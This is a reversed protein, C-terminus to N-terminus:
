FNHKQTVVMQNGTILLSILDITAKLIEEDTQTSNIITNTFQKTSVDFVQNTKLSYEVIIDHLTMKNNDILYDYKDSILERLIDIDINNTENFINSSIFENVFYDANTNCQVNTTSIKHCNEDYKTNVVFKPDLGKSSLIMPDINDVNNIMENYKDVFNVNDFANMLVTKYVDIFGSKLINFLTIYLPNITKGDSMKDMTREIAQILNVECGLVVGHYFASSAAKIADDVADKILKQSLESDAGVEIIGMKLNLAYLRQQALSVELNFTGLKQYKAETEELAVKADKKIMDFKNEDLVFGSFLSTKLGLSCGKVYGLRIYHESLEPLKYDTKSTVDEVDETYIFRYQGAVDNLVMNKINPIEPRTDINFVTFIQEGNHLQEIISKELQQDIVITNCLVAFDEVLKRTHASVAKYTTLIMNVDKKKSYENQLDRVIIQSLAKEDYYPAAVILHRGRMECQMNLPQLIEQYTQKTVKTSFIIIDAEPLIMVNDDSNIYMRDTLMLDYKYGDILKCKTIGDAALECSIAPAGLEKYLDAIYSSMVEDGNSSVYVVDYINKRLEERDDSRIIKVSNQLEKIVEDKINNFYKIIDRPLVNEEKLEDRRSMYNQYISNTSIVASTTGDGVSYNLRGCIDAAMDSIAQDVLTESANFSLNKMITYGDKTVHSWPYNYIITPAGYPGFSKSLTKWLLHFVKGVRNEFEEKSIINIAPESKFHRGSDESMDKGVELEKVDEFNM